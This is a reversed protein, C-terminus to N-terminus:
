VNSMKAEPRYDVMGCLLAFVSALLPTRLPYDVLSAAGLILVGLFAARAIWIRSDTLAQLGWIGWGRWCLWALFGALVFLATAGGELMIEILDNHAHNFYTPKLNFDPEFHRFVADFSGFGSGVPFYTRVADLVVPLLQFRQEDSLSETALLSDLSLAKGLLIVLGTLLIPGAVLAAAKWFRRQGRENGRGSRPNILWAALLGILGLALGARSGTLLIIVLMLLGIALAAVGRTRKAGPTAAPLLTWVRLFPLVMALCAAQHNHNPFLGMPTALDPIRYFYLLHAKTSMQLTGFVASLIGVGVLTPVLWLRQTPPLRGYGILIVLPPLVTLLSNWTLDPTLSIPRWVPRLGAATIAEVIETRGPLREWISPPLPLLQVVMVMLWLLLLTLPPTIRFRQGPLFLVSALCLVSLPRLLLLLTVDWRSSGGTLACVVLFGIVLILLASGALGGGVDHDNPAGGHRRDAARRMGEIMM